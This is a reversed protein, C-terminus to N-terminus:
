HTKQEVPRHEAECRVVNVVTTSQAQSPGEASSFSVHVCVVSQTSLLPARCRRRGEASSFSVHVCVVSQTSLLPAVAGAVDWLQLLFERSCMCREANVVTTSQM